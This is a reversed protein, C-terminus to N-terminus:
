SNLFKLFKIVTAYFQEKEKRDKIKKCEKELGSILGSFYPYTIRLERFRKEILKNTLYQM